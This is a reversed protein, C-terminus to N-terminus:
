PRAGGAEIIARAYDEWTYEAAKRTAAERMAPLEARHEAFWAIKEAIKEPARVPVLFGTEGERVLDEGGANATVIIPLGCALAEQQVLARGEVLSPLALVDCTQMLRMVDSHPRPPEHIFGDYQERYFSMPLIPTGLVVLEVETRDLLKMAAFLDALGKRQSMSGAFLVRLKGDAGDRRAGPPASPSGFTAIVCKKAARIAAPLSELVFKGPCVVVDALEAERTKRALKEDPDRTASLTPEWAPSRGAEERLIGQVTEWYAIPLEYVRRIGAKGAALFTEAAADEYCHVIDFERARGEIWSAVFRDMGAYVADVAAASGRRGLMRAIERGPNCTVKGRPVDFARRALQRRMAGPLLAAVGDRPANITTFFRALLGRDELGALLARVFENGTPHSM